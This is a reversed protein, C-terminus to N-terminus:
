VLPLAVGERVDLARVLHEAEVEQYEDKRRRSVLINELRRTDISAGTQAAKSPCDGYTSVAARKTLRKWGLDDGRSEPKDM